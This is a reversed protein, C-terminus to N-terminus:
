VGKVEVDNISMSLRIEGGVSWIFSSSFGCSSTKFSVLVLNFSGIGPFVKDRGDILSGGESSGGLRRLSLAIRQALSM